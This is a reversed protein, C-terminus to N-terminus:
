SQWRGRTRPGDGPNRVPQLDELAEREASGGWQGHEGPPYLIAVVPFACVSMNLHCTQRCLCGHFIFKHKCRSDTEVRVRRTSREVFIFDAAWGTFMPIRPRRLVCSFKWWYTLFCMILCLQCWTASGFHCWLPKVSTLSCSRIGLPNHQDMCTFLACQDSVRMGMYFPIVTVRINETTERHVDSLELWPHNKEQWAKLTDRAIFPPAVSPPLVCWYEPLVSKNVEVIYM